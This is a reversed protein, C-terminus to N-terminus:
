SFIYNHTFRKVYLLWTTITDYFDVQDRIVTSVGNQLLVYYMAYMGSSDMKVGYYGHVYYYLFWLLGDGREGQWGCTQVQGSM